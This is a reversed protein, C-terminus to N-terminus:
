SLIEITTLTLGFDHVPDISQTSFSSTLLISSSPEGLYLSSMVTVIVSSAPQSNSPSTVAVTTPPVSPEIVAVLSPLLNVNALSSKAAWSNLCLLPRSNVTGVFCESSFM